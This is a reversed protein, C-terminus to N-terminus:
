NHSWKVSILLSQFIPGSIIDPGYRQLSIYKLDSQPFTKLMHVNGLPCIEICNQSFFTNGIKGGFPLIYRLRTGTSKESNKTTMFFALKCM